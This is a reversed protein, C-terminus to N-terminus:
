ATRAHNRVAIDLGKFQRKMRVGALLDALTVDNLADVFAVSARDLATKLACGPLLVCQLAHCDIAYLNGEMAVIVEGIRIRKADRGLVLGGRRGRMSKLYGQQAM